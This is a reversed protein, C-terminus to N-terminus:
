GNREQQGPVPGALVKGWLDRGVIMPQTGVRQIYSARAEAESTDATYARWMGAKIMDPAITDM